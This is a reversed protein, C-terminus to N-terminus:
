PEELPLSIANAFGRFHKYNINLFPLLLLFAHIPLCITYLFFLIIVSFIVKNFLMKFQVSYAVCIYHFIWLLM